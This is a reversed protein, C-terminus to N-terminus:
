AQKAAVSESSDTNNRGWGINSWVREHVYYAVTTYINSVAMFGLAVDYRKTLLYVVSFDLIIITIRYSIAKTLSRKWGETPVRLTQM